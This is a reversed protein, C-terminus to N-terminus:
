EVVIKYTTQSNNATNISKVLYIGKPIASVDINLKNSFVGSYVEQGLINTISVKYTANTESSIFLQKSVPNPFISIEADSPKKHELGTAQSVTFYFIRWDFDEPIGSASLVYKLQYTGANLKGVTITDTSECPISDRGVGQLVIITVSTDTFRKAGIQFIGCPSTKFSSHCFIKIIDNSNANEPFVLVTDIYDEPGHIQAKATFQLQCLAFIFLIFLRMPMM